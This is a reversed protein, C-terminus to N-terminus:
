SQGYVVPSAMDWLKKGIQRSQKLSEKGRETITFLRKSRGGRIESAGGVESKVYGKEELRYLSTHVSSLTVSRELEEEITKTISMGYAEGHQAAVILLVIEEFKGLHLKM